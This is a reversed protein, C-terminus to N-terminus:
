SLHINLYIGELNEYQVSSTIQEANLALFVKDLKEYTPDGRNNSWTFSRSTLELGLLNNNEIIANFLLTM